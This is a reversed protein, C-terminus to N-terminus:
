EGSQGLGRASYDRNIEEDIGRLGGFREDM